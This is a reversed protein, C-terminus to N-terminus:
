LSNPRITPRAIHQLKIYIHACAVADSLANHHNLPIKLHNAITKLTHNPLDTLLSRSMKLTCKWDVAPVPHGLRRLATDLVRRDFAANHAILPGQGIREQIDPYIELFTPADAVMDETIGHIRVFWPYFEHGIPRILSYFTDVVAGKSIVAMGVACISAADPNATEFDISVGNM